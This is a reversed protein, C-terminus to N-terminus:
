QLEWRSRCLSNNKNKFSQGNRKQQAQPKPLIIKTQLM